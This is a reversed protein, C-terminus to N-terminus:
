AKFLVNLLSARLFVPSPSIEGNEARVVASAAVMPVPFITPTAVAMTDPPGPASTHIHIDAQKPRVDLNLSHMSAMLYRPTLASPSIDPPGMYVMFFAMLFLASPLTSPQNKANKVTIADKPMPLIVCALEMVLANFSVKETGLQAIPMMSVSSERSMITPPILDM